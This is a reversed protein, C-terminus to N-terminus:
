PSESVAVVSRAGAAQLGGSRSRVPSLSARMQPAAQNVVIGALTGNVYSIAELLNRLEVDTSRAQQTVVIVGDVMPTMSIADAYVGASPSDVLVIEFKETAARLLGRLKESGLLDTAGEVSSGATLIYLDIEGHRRLADALSKSGMLVDSFGVGNPIGFMTHISPHRLDADILLVRRKTQAIAVALHGAVSTKGEGQAASTILASRVDSGAALVNTRLWRYGEVVSADQSRMVAGKQRKDRPIVGIIVNGAVREIQKVTYLANDINEYVLALVFGGLLGATTGLLLNLLYSPRYPQDPPTAPSVLSVSSNQVEQLLSAAQYQGTLDRYNQEELGIQSRLADITNRNPNSDEFVDEYQQRLDALTADSVQLKQRLAEIASRRDGFLWYPNEQLMQAFTNAIAPDDDYVKISVLETGSLAEVELDPLTEPTLGVREALAEQVPASTLVELYTANIRDSYQTNIWTGSDALGTGPTLVRMTAVTLYVKPTLITLALAVGVCTLLVMLIVWRRRWLVNLLEGLQM